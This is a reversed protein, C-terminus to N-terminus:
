AKACIGLEGHRRVIITVLLTLLAHLSLAAMPGEYTQTHYVVRRNSVGRCGAATEAM